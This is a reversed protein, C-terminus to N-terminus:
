STRSTIRKIGESCGILFGISGAIQLSVHFWRAGLDGSRWFLDVIWGVAGALLGWFFGSLIAYFYAFPIMFIAIILFGFVLIFISERSRFNGFFSAALVAASGWTGIPAMWLLKGPLGWLIDPWLYGPAFLLYGVLVLFPCGYILWLIFRVAPYFTRQKGFLFEHHLWGYIGGVIGWWWLSVSTLQALTPLGFTNQFQEEGLIRNVGFVALQYLLALVLGLGASVAVSSFANTWFGTVTPMAPARPIAPPSVRQIAPRSVRGPLDNVSQLIEEPRITLRSLVQQPPEFLRRTARSDPIEGVGQCGFRACRNGRAQWCDLHHFAQCEPCEVFQDRAQLVDGCFPCERELTQAEPDLVFIKM